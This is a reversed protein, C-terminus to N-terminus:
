GLELRGELLEEVHRDVLVYQLPAHFDRRLHEDFCLQGHGLDGVAHAVVIGGVEAARELAVVPAQGAVPLVLLAPSARPRADVMAKGISWRNVTVVSRSAARVASASMPKLSVSRPSCGPRPVEFWRM